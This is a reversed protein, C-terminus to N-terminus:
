VLFLVWVMAAVWAVTIAVAAVPGKGPIYRRWFPGTKVHNRRALLRLLFLSGVVTIGIKM